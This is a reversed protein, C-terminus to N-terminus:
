PNRRRRQGSSSTGRTATGRATSGRAATNRATGRATSGRAATNRAATGRDASDRAASNRAASGRTQERGTNRLPAGTRQGSQGRSSGRRFGPGAGPGSRDEDEFARYPDDEYDTYEDAIHRRTREARRKKAKRRRDLQVFYSHIFFFICLLFAAALVLPLLLLINLYIAGHAGTHALGFFVARIGHVQEPVVYNGSTTDASDTGDSEAGDAARTVPRFLVNATGLDYDHYKYQITGLIREGSRDTQLSDAPAMTGSETQDQASVAEALDESSSTGSGEEAQAPAAAESGAQNAAAAESDAQNAAADGADALNEETAESGTQAGAEAESGAEAPAGTGAASPDSLDGQVDGSEKQDASGASPTQVQSPDKQANHFSPTIQATLDSFSVNNPVMLTANEDIQFSPGSSGFIDTGTSLFDPAKQTFRNEKGAISIRKFNDFAYDLLDITDYYQYPPEERMIVCILHKGDREAFSVLTERAEDTYGTKGGIIDDCTIEGTLFDNTNGIWFDDPQTASAEFHYNPQSMYEVLDPHRYVERAILAMDYACTYHDPDHLGNTTVFHTNKCGLEAARENMLSVFDSESGAVREGLAIAVENASAVMLGSLAQDMTISEGVDMGINSSGQEIGFVANESFTVTDAPKLNEYALLATMVKTISAPYLHKDMNKGYLVAGSEADMVVAGAAGVAPGQPWAPVQNTQIAQAKNRKLEASYDEFGEATYIADDEVKAAAALPAGALSVALFVASATVATKKLWKRTIIM